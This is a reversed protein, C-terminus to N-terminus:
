HVQQQEKKRIFFNQKDVGAAVAVDFFCFFSLLMADNPLTGRAEVRCWDIFALRDLGKPEESEM